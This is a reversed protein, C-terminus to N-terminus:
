AAFNFVCVWVSALFLILSFRVFVVFLLSVSCMPALVISVPLQSSFSTFIFFFFCLFRLVLWLLLNYLLQLQANSYDDDDDDDDNRAPGSSAHMALSHTYKHAHEVHASAPVHMCGNTGISDFGICCHGHSLARTREIKEKKRTKNKECSGFLQTEILNYIKSYIIFKDMCKYRPRHM